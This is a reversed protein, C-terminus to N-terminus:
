NLGPMWVKKVATIEKTNEGHIILHTKTVINLVVFIM